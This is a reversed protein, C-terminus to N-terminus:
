VRILERKGNYLLIVEGEGCGELTEIQDNKIEEYSNFEELHTVDYDRAVSNYSNLKELLRKCKRAEVKDDFIYVTDGVEYNYVAFM